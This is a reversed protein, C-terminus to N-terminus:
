YHDLEGMLSGALAMVRKEMQELYDQLGLELNDVRQEIQQLYAILNDPNAFQVSRGGVFERFDVLEERFSESTFTALDTIDSRPTFGSNDM